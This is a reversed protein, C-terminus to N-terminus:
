SYMQEETALADLLDNIYRKMGEYKSRALIKIQHMCVECNLYKLNNRGSEMMDDGPKMVLGGYGRFGGFCQNSLTCFIVIFIIAKNM